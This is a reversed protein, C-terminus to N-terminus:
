PVNVFFWNSKLLIAIFPAPDALGTLHLYSKVAFRGPELAMYDESIVDGSQWPGVGMRRIIERRRAVPLVALQTAHALYEQPGVSVSATKLNHQVVAHAIEHAIAGSYHVRDFPEGYMQPPTPGALIAAYSMLEIRDSRSDYTGFAEYNSSELKHEVLGLLIARRPKLGYPALFALARDAAACIEAQQAKTGNEIQVLSQRPCPRAHATAAACLVLLFLLLIRATM